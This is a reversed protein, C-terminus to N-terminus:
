SGGKVETDAPTVKVKVILFYERTKEWPQGSSALAEAKAEARTRHTGWFTGWQYLGWATKERAPPQKDKAM